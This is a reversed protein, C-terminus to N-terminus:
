FFVNNIHVTAINGEVIDLLKNLTSTSSTVDRYGDGDIDTFNKGVLICGKVDHYFNGRHILIETREPVEQIWFCEGFKPSNHKLAIYDGEPIRSIYKQNEKWPLELTKASFLVSGRPGKVTLEGLTQKDEEEFRDIIITNM